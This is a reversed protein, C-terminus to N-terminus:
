GFHSRPVLAVPRVWGASGHRLKAPFAAFVFGTPRPISGLNTLKELHLHERARGVFHLPFFQPQDTYMAKTMSDYSVDMAYADIGILKVGRDLIWHLGEPSLGGQCQFYKDDDDIYQDAGTWLLVIVGPELVAGVRDVEAELDNATIDRGLHSRFDLRVAKGICWELPVQDITKAPKGEVTPGFHWPADIHNGAHDSLGVEMWGLGMDEPFDEADVRNGETSTAGRVNLFRAMTKAGHRHDIIKSRFGWPPYAAQDLYVGLDIVEFPEDFVIGREIMFM